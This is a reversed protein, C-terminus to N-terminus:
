ASLTFGTPEDNLRDTARAHVEPSGPRACHMKLGDVGTVGPSEATSTTIFMEVLLALLACECAGALTGNAEVVIQIGSPTTIQM